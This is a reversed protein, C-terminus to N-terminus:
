QAQKAPVKTIRCVSYPTQGDRISTRDCQIVLNYYVDDYSEFEAPAGAEKLADILRAANEHEIVVKTTEAPSGASVIKEAAAVAASLTLAFAVTVALNKMM